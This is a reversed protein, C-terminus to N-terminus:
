HSGEAMSQALPVVVPSNNLLGLTADYTEILRQSKQFDEPENEAMRDYAALKLEVVIIRLKERLKERDHITHVAEVKDMENKFYVVREFSPQVKRLEDEMADCLAQYQGM